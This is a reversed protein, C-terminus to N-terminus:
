SKIMKTVVLGPQSINFATGSGQSNTGPAEAPVTHAHNQAGGGGVWDSNGSPGQTNGHDHGGANDMSTGTARMGNSGQQLGEGSGGWRWLIDPAGVGSGGVGHRHDGVGNVWHVHGGLGHWHNVDHAGTAGGHSHSNVTHSHAPMNGLALAVTEAGFAQGNARATLGTGTGAGVAVRGRFDPVNFTAVNDGAGYTTGVAAFLRSYVARSVAAGDCPLWDRRGATTETTPVSGATDLVTGAPWIADLLSVMDIVALGHGGAVAHRAPNLYQTHHDLTPDAMHQNMLNMDDATVVHEIPAGSSHTAAATGDQGRGGAIVTLTAPITGDRAVCKVKEETTLGKDIVAFFPGTAGSPWGTGNAIPITLTANDINGTLTTPPANGAYERREGPPM